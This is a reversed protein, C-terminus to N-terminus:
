GQRETTALARAIARNLWEELTIGEIAAAAKARNRLSRDIRVVATENPM